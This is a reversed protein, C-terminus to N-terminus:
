DCLLNKRLLIDEGSGPQSLVKSRFFRGELSLTQRLPSPRTVGSM